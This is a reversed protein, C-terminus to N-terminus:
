QDLRFRDRIARMLSRIQETSELGGKRRHVERAQATLAIEALRLGETDNSERFEDVSAALDNYKQKADDLAATSEAAKNNATALQDILKSAEGIKNIDNVLSEIENSIEVSNEGFDELQNQLKEIEKNGEVTALINLSIDDRQVM